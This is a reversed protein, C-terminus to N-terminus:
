IENVFYDDKGGECYWSVLLGLGKKNEMEGAVKRRERETSSIFSM